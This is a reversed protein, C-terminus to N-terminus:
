RIRALCARGNRSDARRIRYTPRRTEGHALYYTHRDMLALSRRAEARTAFEWQEGWDTGTDITGPVPLERRDVNITSPLYHPTATIIYM